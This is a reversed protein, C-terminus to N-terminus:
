ERLGRTEASNTMFLEWRRGEKSVLKDDDGRNMCTHLQLAQLLLCLHMHVLHTCLPVLLQRGRHPGRVGQERHRGVGDLVCPAPHLVAM